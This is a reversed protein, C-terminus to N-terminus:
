YFSKGNPWVQLRCHCHASTQITWMSIYGIQEWPSQWLCLQAGQTLCPWRLGIPFCTYSISFCRVASLLSTLFHSLLPIPPPAEPTPASIGRCGTFLVWTVFMEHGVALTFFRCWLLPLTHPPLLLLSSGNHDTWLGQAGNGTSSAM